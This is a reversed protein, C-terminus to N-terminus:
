ALSRARFGEGKMPSKSPSPHATTEPLGSLSKWFTPGLTKARGMAPVRGLPLVSASSKAKSRSSRAEGM